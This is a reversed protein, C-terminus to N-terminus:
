TKSKKLSLKVLKEVIKIDVDELKKLNICGKGFKAKGLQKLLEQTEELYPMIYLSIYAKRPSFGVIFWEYEKKTSNTYSYKGYGVISTGWMVGESKTWKTFLEHIKLCDKRKQEDEIAELFKKVDANNKQTKLEYM